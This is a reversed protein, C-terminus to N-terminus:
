EINRIAEAILADLVQTFAGVQFWGATEFFYGFSNRLRRGTHLAQANQVRIPNVKQFYWMWGLLQSHAAQLAVQIFVQLLVGCDFNVVDMTFFHKGLQALLIV